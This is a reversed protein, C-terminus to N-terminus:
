SKDNQKWDNYNLAIKEKLKTTSYNHGRGVFLIKISLDDGTYKKDIYDQGLFRVDYNQTMLLYHLDEETKYPIIEDIWKISSLIEIREELSHVPSMKNREVSPDEHLLVTLHECNTKAFRFMKAYGPHMLDFAGAVVGRVGCTQKRWDLANVAKDDIVIDYTPKVNM